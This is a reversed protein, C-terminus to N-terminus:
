PLAKVRRRIKELRGLAGDLSFFAGMAIPFLIRKVNNADSIQALDFHLSKSQDNKDFLFLEKFNCALVWEITSNSKAYKFAQPIAKEALDHEPGKLELTAKSIFESPKTGDRYGLSLDNYQKSKYVKPLVHFQGAAKMFQSDYGFVSCFVQENFSQELQTETLEGFINEKHRTQLRRFTRLADLLKGNGPSYKRLEEEYIGKHYLFDLKRIM